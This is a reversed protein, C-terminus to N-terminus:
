ARIMWTFVVIQDTPIYFYNPAYSVNRSLFGFLARQWRPMRTGTYEVILERPLQYFTAPSAASIKGGSKDRAIALIEPAHPEQIFGHRALVHWVRPALQNVAVSRATDVNSEMASVISLIILEERLLGGRRLMEGLRAIAYDTQANSTILVIQGDVAPLGQVQATLKEISPKRSLIRERIIVRGKWWTMMVILFAGAILIPFYAGEAFKALCSLLFPIEIALFLATMSRARWASWGWCIRAVEGLAISTIVMAGVVALGYAAALNESSRFTVVLLVCLLGLGWNVAPVYVQGRENRSTHIVNLHPAFGLEQAQKTLSFVGSILAQSAVVTAVTALIVLAVTMPGQPVMEFFPTGRAFAEPHRLALAAQGLYNMLLAPLAVAHWALGIARRNFHGMDAYLAEVGTIALVVAGLVLFAAPGASTLMQIAMWPNLAQLVEPVRVIWVIGMAGIVFFWLLMTWGFVKGLRGTGLRQVAFLAVLVAVTAPVVARKLNPEIAELGEMASLVSIAPTITGDGILLAAGALLLIAVWPLREGRVGGLKERLLASLAFVGGEGHYDARMVVLLYKCSVVLIVTWVILSAVGLVDRGASQGLAVVAAEFSYLPSTGIDGFVVGLAGVAMALQTKRGAAM